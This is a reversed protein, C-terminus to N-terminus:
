APQGPVAGSDLGGDDVEEGYPQGLAGPREHRHLEVHDSCLCNEIPYGTAPAGWGDDVPEGAYAEPDGDGCPPLPEPTV